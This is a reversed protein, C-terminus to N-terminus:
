AAVKRAPVIAHCTGPRDIVGGKHAGPACKINTIQEGPSCKKNTTQFGTIRNKSIEVAIINGRPFVKLKIKIKIKLKIKM